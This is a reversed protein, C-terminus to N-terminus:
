CVERFVYKNGYLKLFMKKKLEYVDTKKGKVDEVVTIFKNEMFSVRKKDDYQFDAIYYVPRIRLKNYDTDIREFSDQLLFKPQLVLNSIEGAKQLLKLELYRKAEKKSHFKKGDIETIKNRYKNM